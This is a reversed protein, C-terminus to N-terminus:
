DSEKGSRGDNEKGEAFEIKKPPSPSAFMDM